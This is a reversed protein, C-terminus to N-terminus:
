LRIPNLERPMVGKLDIIANPLKLMKIWDDSSLQKFNNHAVAMILADFKVDPPISSHVEVCYKESLLKLDALPDVLTVKINFSLLLSIIDMVKSNRLDPCNEKFTVGLILVNATGIVIGKKAMDLILKDVVWKSMGDNIRRGALVIQPHYGTQEAKYTLYYPDIGICHGGVLGPKFNLFNWKTCAADLVDLTDINLNSFIMALENMLAINIDRQVNEIVKAAEAIKISSAKYTGALAIKSYLNDIFDSSQPTSGSTIKIVKDLTHEKDGPNIREPSYGCVFDRNFKLGSAREIIPVCVEETAGPYVTAKM